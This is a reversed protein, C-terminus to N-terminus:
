EEPLKLVHRVVAQRASEREAERGQYSVRGKIIGALERIDGRWLPYAVAKGDEVSFLLQDGQRLGLKERIDRPITIQGKSTITATSM